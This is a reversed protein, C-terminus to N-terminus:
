EVVGVGSAAEILRELMDPSTTHEALRNPKGDGHYDSSGTVILNHDHALERLTKRAALPNDRHDVEIGDLGVKILDNLGVDRMLNGRSDAAPHAIVAVGGADHIMRIADIPSLVPMPVYYPGGTHLLTAFAETRDTVVGLTVLADAVHPRGVTAGPGVHDLVDEWTIPFDDSLLEVIRRTRSLRVERTQSTRETIEAGDPNHLYCLMHVSNGHYRCSVEMGRVVRVGHARAAQASEPWHAVTDHDTIGLTTIGVRKAEAVVDQPAQTGDSLTTHTHLDIM